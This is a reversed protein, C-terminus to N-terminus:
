HPGTHRAPLENALVAVLALLAFALDSVGLLHTVSPRDIMLAVATMVAVLMALTM